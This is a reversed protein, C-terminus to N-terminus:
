TSFKLDNKGDVKTNELTVRVNPTYFFSFKTSIIACSYARGVSYKDSFWVAVQAV